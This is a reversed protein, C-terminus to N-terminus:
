AMKNKGGITLFDSLKSMERRARKSKLYLQGPPPPEDYAPPAVSAPAAPAGGVRAAATLSPPPLAAASAAPIAAADTLEGESAAADGSALLRAASDKAPSDRASPALTIVRLASSLASSLWGTSM